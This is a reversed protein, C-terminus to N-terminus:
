GRKRFFLKMVERVPRVRVGEARLACGVAHYSMGFKRGVASMSMPAAYAAVIAAREEETLPRHQRTYSKGAASVVREVTRGSVGFERGIEEVTLDGDLYADLVRARADPTM